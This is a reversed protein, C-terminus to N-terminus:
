DSHLLSHLKSKFESRRRNAEIKEEDVSDFVFDTYVYTRYTLGNETTLQYTDDGETTWVGEIKNMQNLKWLNAANANTFMAMAIAGANEYPDSSFSDITACYITLMANLEMFFFTFYIQQTETEISEM